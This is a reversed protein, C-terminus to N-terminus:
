LSQATIVESAASIIALFEHIKLSAGGVLVGDIDRERLFAYANAGDVSGGYLVKADTEAIHQSEHLAKRVVRHMAVADAPTAPTGSGIAWVPEYAVMCVSRKPLRLGDFAARVQRAVAEEAKGAAREEATEGVCVVPTLGAAFAQVAKDHVMADTEGLSRRRESHGVLVHTCGADALQQASIEGTLPGSPQPAVNQAGLAVHSRAILKRVDALATSSPCVVIDPLAESGRIGHLVGRVLAVSERSGLHMKYNGIVTKM